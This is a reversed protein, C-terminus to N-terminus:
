DIPGQWDARADSPEGKVEPQDHCLSSCWWLYAFGIYLLSTVLTALHLSYGVAYTVYGSEIMLIAAFVITAFVGWVITFRDFRPLLQIRTCRGIGIGILAVAVPFLFGTAIVSGAIGIAVSDETTGFGENESIAYFYRKDRWPTSCYLAIGLLALIWKYAPLAHRSRKGTNALPDSFEGRSPRYPNDM